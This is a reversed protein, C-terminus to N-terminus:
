SIVSDKHAQRALLATGYAAQTHQPIQIKVGILNQRIETWAPNKAGGGVTYIKKPYPAGLKQLCQYGDAEIRAMSELLGQFFLRDNNPRPALRAQKKPDAIPFREGQSILPYYDLDTPNEPQLHPTMAQLQQPTFYKLLVAGGTNSAGGALWKDWLRHSYVGYQASFVPKDSLMKIALTSGLSTVSEGIQEAGTALFAAISDTTGTVIRTDPSLGILNAIDPKIMKIATGPPYVQPLYNMDFGLESIWDPWHRAIPDYGMKLCNNEDSIDFCGTLQGALWDAQHLIHSVTNPKSHKLLWLCKALSSTVGLAGTNIPAFHHIKEAEETARADNYMLAPRLPTGHQDVALVTASTGDIAIATIPYSLTNCLQLLVTKLAEWWIYPDQQVEIGRRKPAPLKIAYEGIMQGTIDCACGRCGSTGIDIGVFIHNPRM